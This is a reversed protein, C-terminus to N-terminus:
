KGARRHTDITVGNIHDFEHLFVRAEMGELAFRLPKGQSTWQYGEIRCPRAIKIGNLWPFSLCGEGMVETETSMSEVTPNVSLAVKGGLRVVFARKAYGIQPASIGLANRGMSNITDILDVLCQKDADSTFDVTECVKRLIPDPHKVIPRVAM